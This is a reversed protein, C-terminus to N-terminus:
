KLIYEPDAKNMVTDKTIIIKKIDDRSPVEYMIKMMFGEMIRHFTLGDYFGESVLKEFNKVTIPAAEPCLELKIVAGNEMEIVVM